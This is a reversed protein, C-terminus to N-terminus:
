IKIEFENNENLQIPIQKIISQMNLPGYIHPYLGGKAPEWKLESSLKTKDVVLIVPNLRSKYFKNAVRTLQNKPSAHIFGEIQLSDRVLQNNNLSQTLEQQDSILYIFPDYVPQLIREFMVNLQSSEQQNYIYDVRYRATLEAGNQNQEIISIEAIAQYNANLLWISSQNALTQNRNLKFAYRQNVKLEPIDDLILFTNANITQM